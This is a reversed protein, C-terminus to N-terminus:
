RERQSTKETTMAPRRDAATGGPPEPKPGLRVKVAEERWARAVILNPDLRLAEDLLTIGVNDQGLSVLYHGYQAYTYASKPFLRVATEFHQIILSTDQNLNKDFAMLYLAKPHNPVYRLIFLLDSLAYTYAGERYTRWFNSDSLHHTEVTRVTAAIRPDYERSFYDVGIIENNSSIENGTGAQARAKGVGGLLILVSGLTALAVHTGSGWRHPVARRNM